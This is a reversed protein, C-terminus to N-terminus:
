IDRLSWPMLNRALVADPTTLQSLATAVKTTSSLPRRMENM